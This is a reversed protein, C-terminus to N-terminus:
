APPGADLGAIRTAPEGSMFRPVASVHLPVAGLGGADRVGALTDGAAHAAQRADDLHVVTASAPATGGDPAPPPAPAGGGQPAPASAKRAAADDLGGLLMAANAGVGEPLAGHHSLIPLVMALSAMVLAMYPGGVGGGLVLDAWQRVPEHKAAVADLADGFAPAGRTVIALDNNDFPGPAMCAVGAYFALSSAYARAKNADARAAAPPTKGKAPQADKAGTEKKGGAPHQFRVHTAKAQSTEFSENCATGDDKFRDCVYLKKGPADGNAAAGDDNDDDTGIGLLALAADDDTLEDPGGM